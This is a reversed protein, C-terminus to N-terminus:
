QRWIGLYGDPLSGPTPQAADPTVIHRGKAVTSAIAVTGQRVAVAQIPSGGASVGAAAFPTWIYRQTLDASTVLLYAEGSEYAGVSTGNIQRTSRNQIQYYADGGLYIRGAEDAAITKVGISNGSGDSKRTLLSQGRELAGDAPNYRGYWLMSISGTNTATNYSDTKVERAGLTLNVNKPDRAFISAGTGGNISGAFYIKGDRGVAVRRGRTDANTGAAGIASASFDYSTWKEAANYGWARLFAVQLTAAKQKFGAAVVTQGPAYVAVDFSDQDSTAAGTAITPLPTGAAGPLAITAGVAAAVTGDSGIACRKVAGHSGDSWLVANAAATLVAVGFSGCVAIQGGDAIELDAVTAGVRTLSLVQGASSFRVVAGDGGGLLTLPSVAGLAPIGGAFVGGLVITGDPAVDAAQATDAGAGGLHSAYTLPFNATTALRPSRSLLPLYLPVGLQPTAAAGAALLAGILAALAALRFRFFRAM